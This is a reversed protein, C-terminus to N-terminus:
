IDVILRASPHYDIVPPDIRAWVLEGKEKPLSNEVAINVIANEGSAINALRDGQSAIRAITEMAQQRGAASLELTWASTSKLGYSARCPSQDIEFWGFMRNSTNSIGAIPAAM